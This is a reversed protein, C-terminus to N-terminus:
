PQTMTPQLIPLVEAAIAANNLNWHSQSSPNSDYCFYAWGAANYQSYGQLVTQYFSQWQSQTTDKSWETDIWPFGANHAANAASQERKLVYDTDTDPNWSNMPSYNHTALLVNEHSGSVYPSTFIETWASASLLFEVIKLHSNSGEGQEIASIWGNNFSAFATGADSTSSTALENFGEFIVNSSSAYHQGMWQYLYEVGSQIQSNYLFDIRGGGDGNSLGKGNSL